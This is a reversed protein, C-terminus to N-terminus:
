NHFRVTSALSDFDKFYTSYSKQNSGYTLIYANGDVPVIIQRIKVPVNITVAYELFYADKGGVKTKGEKLLIFDNAGLFTRLENKLANVYERLSSGQMDEAKININTLYGQSDNQHVDLDSYLFLIASLGDLNFNEFEFWHGPYTLSFGYVDNSYKISPYGKIGTSKTGADLLNGKSDTVGWNLVKVPASSSLEFTAQSGAKIPSKTTLYAVNNTDTRKATWGSPAKHKTIDQDALM